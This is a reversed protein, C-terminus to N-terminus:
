NPLKDKCLELVDIIQLSSQNANNTVLLPAPRGCVFGHLHLLVV